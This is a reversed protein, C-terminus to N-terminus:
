AFVLSFVVYSGSMYPRSLHVTQSTVKEFLVCSCLMCDFRSSCEVGRTARGIFGIVIVSPIYIFRGTFHRAVYGSM